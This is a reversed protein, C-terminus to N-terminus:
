YFSNSVACLQANCHMSKLSTPHPVTTIEIMGRCMFHKMIITYFTKVWLGVPSKDHCSKLIEIQLPPPQLIDFLLAQSIPFIHKKHSDISYLLTTIIYVIYYILRRFHPKTGFSPSFNLHARQLKHKWHPTSHYFSRKFIFM